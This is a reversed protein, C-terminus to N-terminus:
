VEQILGPSALSNRAAELLTPVLRGTPVGPQGRRSIELVPTSFLAPAQRHVHRDAVVYGRRDVQVDGGDAQAV